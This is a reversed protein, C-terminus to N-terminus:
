FPDEWGLCSCANAVRCEFEGQLASSSGWTSDSSFLAALTLFSASTSTHMRTHVHMFVSLFASVTILCMFKFYLKLLSLFFQLIDRTFVM